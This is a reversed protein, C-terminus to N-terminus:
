RAHLSSVIWAAWLNSAWGVRKALVMTPGQIIPDKIATSTLVGQDKVPGRGWGDSYYRYELSVSCFKSPLGEASIDVRRPRV